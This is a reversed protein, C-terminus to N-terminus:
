SQETDRENNGELLIETALKGDVLLNGDVLTLSKGKIEACFYIKGNSSGCWSLPSAEKLARFDGLMVLTAALSALHDGQSTSNEAMTPVSKLVPLGKKEATSKALASVSARVTPTSATYGTSKEQKKGDDM